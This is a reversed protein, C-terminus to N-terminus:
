FDCEESYYGDDDVFNWIEDLNLSQEAIVRVHNEDIVQQFDDSYFREVTDEVVVTVLLIQMSESFIGERKQLLINFAWLKTLFDCEGKGFDTFYFKAQEPFTESPLPLREGEEYLSHELDSDIDILMSAALGKEENNDRVIFRYLTQTNM